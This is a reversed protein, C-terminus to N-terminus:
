KQAAYLFRLLRRESTLTHVSSLFQQIGEFNTQGELAILADKQKDRAGHWRQAIAAAKESTDSLKILHFGAQRILQENQGRASFLYYGILSRTAIEQHSVVGGIVLADSFLLRGLPKLVRFLEHLVELRGPLHCLVDNSFVADFSEDAFPLEKSADCHQFRVRDSIGRTSALQNAIHIGAENIDLGLLRCGYSEAVQLAYGGSGCGIELVYSNPALDLIRPIENSEETTVWSTQGLDQGYTEIRIQRYVDAEYNGYAPNYLDATTSM